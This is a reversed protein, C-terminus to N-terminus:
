GPHERAGSEGFCRHGNDSLVFDPPCLCDFSGASNTCTGFLCLNPEESCEDIDPPASVHLSPPHLLGEVPPAADAAPFPLRPPPGARSSGPVMAPRPGWPEPHALAGPLCHTHTDKM